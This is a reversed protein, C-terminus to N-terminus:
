DKQTKLVNILNNLGGSLSYVDEKGTKRKIHIAIFYSKSGEDCAIVVPIDTKIISIDNEIESFTVIAFSLEEPLYDSTHSISLLQFEEKNKLRILLDESTIKRAQM